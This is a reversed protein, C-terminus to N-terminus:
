ASARAARSRSSRSRREEDRRRRTASSARPRTRCRWWRTRSTSSNEAERPHGLTRLAQSLLAQLYMQRSDIVNYIRQAKGFPPAGPRATADLDDGLADPRQAQETFRRYRFDRGLLGFKWFQNAIDKGVYTVVGNSRVIVKERSEADAAREADDAPRPTADAGAGEEIRMVWCGALKGETQLFVAGQAKLIEFAHAWFQLRLIDGEYTLLDYGINLRAM